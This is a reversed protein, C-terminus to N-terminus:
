VTLRSSSKWLPGLSDNSERYKGVLAFHRGCDGGVYSLAGEEWRYSLFLRRRMITVFTTQAQPLDILFVSSISFTFLEEKVCNYYCAKYIFRLSSCIESIFTSLKQDERPFFILHSLLLSFSLLCSQARLRPVVSCRHFLNAERRIEIEDCVRIYTPIPSFTPLQVVLVLNANLYGTAFTLTSHTSCYHHHHPPPPNPHDAPYVQASIGLLAVLVISPRHRSAVGFFVTFM